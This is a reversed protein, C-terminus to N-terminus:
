YGRDNAKLRQKDSLIFNDEIMADKRIKVYDTTITSSKGLFICYATLKNMEEWKRSLLYILEDTNYLILDNNFKRLKCVAEYIRGLSEIDFPTVYSKERKVIKERNIYLIGNSNMYNYVDSYVMYRPFAVGDIAALRLGGFFDLLDSGDKLPISVIFTSLLKVKLVNLDNEVGPKLDDYWEYLINCLYEFAINHEVLPTSNKKVLELYKQEIDKLNLYEIKSVEIKESEVINRAKFKYEESM